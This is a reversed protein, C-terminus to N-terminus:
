RRRALAVLPSRQELWARAEGVVMLSGAVCILGGAPTVRQAWSLAEFVSATVSPRGGAPLAFAESMSEPDCGRSSQARTLVVSSVYPILERAMTAVDKDAMAGFVLTIPCHCFEALYSALAAAGAPNHAGDLLVPPVGLLLELRGPWHVRELGHLIAARSIPVGRGRLAEAAEIALVANDVQHRGRMGLRVNEYSDATSEYSFVFCGRENGDIRPDGAFAPLVGVELCRSTISDLASTDQHAVVAAVGEKIIAAKEAAIKALTSGLYQQHDLGIPTVVSVLPTVVNTADLRGGLGVELIALEVGREAFELMAMATLHEFFTPLGPLDGAALLREAVARVRTALAAFREAAISEGDVRIREEPAVLHPSTYLGVHLHAACAMAELMAAVSGKGNTGAILVCRLGRQPKGLGRLLTAVAGLGLKMATVENGLSYLYDLSQQHNM